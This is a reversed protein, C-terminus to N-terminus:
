EEEEYYRYDCTRAYHGTTANYPLDRGGIRLFGRPLMVSKLLEDANQKISPKISYLVLQIRTTTSRPINDAFSTNPSDVIFYTIHTDPLKAGVPYMGQEKVPYGLQSLTDYIIKYINDLRFM